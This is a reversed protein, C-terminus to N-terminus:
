RDSRLGNEARLQGRAIQRARRDRENTNWPRLEARRMMGRSPRYPRRTGLPDDHTETAIGLAAAILGATHRRTKM